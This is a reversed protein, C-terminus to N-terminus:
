ITIGLHHVPYGLKYSTSEKVLIKIVYFLFRIKLVDHPKIQQKKYMDIFQNCYSSDNEDNMMQTERISDM